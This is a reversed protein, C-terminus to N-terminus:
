PDCRRSLPNLYFYIYVATYFLFGVLLDSTTLKRDKLSRRRIYIYIIPQAM